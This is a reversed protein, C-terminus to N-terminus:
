IRHVYLMHCMCIEAQTVRAQATSAKQMFFLQWIYPACEIQIDSEAIPPPVHLYMYELDLVITHSSQNDFLYVRLDVHKISSDLKHYITRLAEEARASM